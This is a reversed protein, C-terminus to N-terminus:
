LLETAALQAGPLFCAGRQHPVACALLGLPRSLKKVHLHAAM